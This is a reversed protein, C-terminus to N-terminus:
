ATNAVTAIVGDSATFLTESHAQFELSCQDDNAAAGIRFKFTTKDGPRLARVVVGTQTIKRTINKGRLWVKYTCDAPPTSWKNAKVWISDYRSGDNQIRYQFGYTGAGAVEIEQETEWASGMYVNDGQWGGGALRILGDPKRPAASAPSAGITVVLLSACSLLVLTRRLRAPM